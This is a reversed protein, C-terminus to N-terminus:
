YTTTSLDNPDGSLMVKVQCQQLTNLLEKHHSQDMEHQSADKAAWPEHVYPPDLYFLVREGDQQRIVLSRSPM